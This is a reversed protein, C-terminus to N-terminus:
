GPYLRHVLSVEDHSTRSRSISCYNSASAISSIIDPADVLLVWTTPPTHLSVIIVPVGNGLSIVTAIWGVTHHLVKTGRLVHVHIGHETDHGSPRDQVGM